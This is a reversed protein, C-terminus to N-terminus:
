QTEGGEIVRLRPRQRALRPAMPSRRRDPDSTVECALQHALATISHISPNVRLRSMLRHATEDSARELDSETFGLREGERRCTEDIVLSARLVLQRLLPERADPDHELAQRWLTEVEHTTLAAYHADLSHLPNRM